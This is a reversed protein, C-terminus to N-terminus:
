IKFNKVKPHTHTEMFIKAPCKYKDPATYEQKYLSKYQGPYAETPEYDNDVNFMPAGGVKFPKYTKNHTTEGLFPIGPSLPSKAKSKELPRAPDANQGAFNEQYATKGVFPLESIVTKNNAAKEYDVPMTGWDIYEAKYGSRGAFPIGGTAAREGNVPQNAQIKHPKYDNRMTTGFDIPEEINFTGYFDNAIKPAKEIPHKVFDKQYLTQGPGKEQLKFPSSYYKQQNAWCTGCEDLRRVMEYYEAEEEPKVNPNSMFAKKMNERITEANSTALTATRGHDHVPAKKDEIVNQAAKKLISEQKVPVSAASNEKNVTVQNAKVVAITPGNQPQPTVPKNNIAQQSKADVAKKLKQGPPNGVKENQIVRAKFPQVYSPNAPQKTQSSM